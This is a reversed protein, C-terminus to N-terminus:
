VQQKNSYLKRDVPYVRVEIFIDTTGKWNMLKGSLFQMIIATCIRKNHYLKRDDREIKVTFLSWNNGKM